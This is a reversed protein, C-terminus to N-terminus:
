VTIEGKKLKELEASNPPDNENEHPDYAGLRKCGTAM